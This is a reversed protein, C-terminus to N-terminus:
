LSLTIKLIVYFCMKTATLCKDDRTIINYFLEHILTKKSHHNKLKICGKKELIQNVWKLSVRLHTNSNKGNFSCRKYTGTCVSSIETGKTHWTAAKCRKFALWGEMVKVKQSNGFYHMQWWWLKHSELPPANLVKKSISSNLTKKGNAARRLHVLTQVNFSMENCLFKFM